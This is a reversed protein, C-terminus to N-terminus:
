TEAAWTPEFVTLRAWTKTLSPSRTRASNPNWSNRVFDGLCGNFDPGQVATSGDRPVISERLVRRRSRRALNVLSQKPDTLQDPQLPVLVANIGLFDAFGERDALLWSEVERVAVRFILNSHPKSNLWDEVLGSPCPHHDLDTLLLIPIGCAAAANWNPATKRLYGFGGRGYVTGVVYDKGTERLLRRAISESLDDEVVLHVPIPNM